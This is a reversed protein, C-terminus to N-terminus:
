FATLAKAMERKQDDEFSALYSQTTKLNSHGLAESIFETSAGSKKLITAFSHRAAYTTVEQNIGVTRAITKMNANIVDNIQKILQREREASLDEKLIPFIYTETSVKKNGWKKIIEMAPEMLPVRIAEVRRKTRITKARQFVLVDGDINKYKLLCLDKVNIGNCFYIFMWLDKTMEQSSGQLPTYHYLSSIDKITLAKKVNKGTPIEFRRKGFPYLEKSVIGESMAINFITRLSRLYIGTTTVSKKNTLMWNEYSRLLEPTVDAFILNPKFKHISTKACKYSEATGIRKEVLLQSIYENFAQSINSSNGKNKLFKKEFNNWTFFPLEKIIESAKGELANLKMRMEKFENRPREAMVKTFQEITLNFPTPYYKKRRQHTVRISVACKGDQQPHYRDIFISTTALGAM